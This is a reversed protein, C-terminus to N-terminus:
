YTLVDWFVSIILVTIHDRDLILIQLEADFVFNEAQSVKRVTCEDYPHRPLFVSLVFSSKNM